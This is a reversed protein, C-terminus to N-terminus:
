SLELTEGGDGRRRSSSRSTRPARSSTREWCDRARQVVALFPYSRSRPSPLHLLRPLRRFAETLPPPSPLSPSQIPLFQLPTRTSPSILLPPIPPRHQQHPRPLPLPSSPPKWQLNSPRLLGPSPRPLRLSSSTPRSTSTLETLSESSVKASDRTHGRAPHSTLEYELLRILSTFPLPLFTRPLTGRRHGSM